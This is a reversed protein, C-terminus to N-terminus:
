FRDLEATHPGRRSRRRRVRAFITVGVVLVLGFGGLLWYYVTPFGATNASFSLPISALVSFASDSVVTVNDTPPCAVFIAGLHSDYGAERPLGGVAVSAVSSYNTGSFVDLFGTNTTYQIVAYFENTGFDYTIGYPEGWETRVTQLLRNSTPDIVFVNDGYFDTVLIKGTAGDYTSGLMIVSGFFITAVQTNTTDNIVDVTNTGDYTSGVTTVFMEGQRGDYAISTPGCPCPLPVTAVVHNTLDSIVSLNDSFQNVVYVEGRGSDYAAASPNQGVTTTAVVANTTDNVVSVNDSDANTVFIEGMKPDYTTSLPNSGVAITAVVSDNSDNIVSILNSGSDAVFMEGKGGDYSIGVPWAGNRIESDAVFSNSYPEGKGAHAPLNPQGHGLGGWSSVTVILGVVAVSLFAM